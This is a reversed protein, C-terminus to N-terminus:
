NCAGTSGAECALPCTPCKPGAGDLALVLVLEGPGDPRAGLEFGHELGLPSNVFWEVLGPRRSEIRGPPDSRSFRGAAGAACPAQM